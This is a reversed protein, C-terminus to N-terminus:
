WKPNWSKGETEESDPNDVTEDTWNSAVDEETNLFKWVPILLLAALAFFGVLTLSTVLWYNM